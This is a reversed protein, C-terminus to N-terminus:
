GMTKNLLKKLQNLPRTNLVDAKELWGRRAQGIGFRLHEFDGPVHADSNISVLVGEERAMQCYTDVLDLRQPQSNLELYCGRQAAHRVVQALDVDYADREDLLRGTPHALITFYKHDMARRIRSTQKKRPLDFHSHVAGVVLDLESLVVDSLDLSGDELIDVEIGKLVTIGKLESNLEDIQEMQKRLRRADLGKAVTLRKSHDTVAVYQFGMDRAAKVMTKMDARGDTANTHTHLDGKLDDLAILKPLKKKRAAEIEGRDERLEPEIFALGVSKFVEAETTGATRKEGKFIGYENIKLKEQQGLRRVQINHAKSGTFYHLAAGFSQEPVVRLDVQLGSRLLVTARTTGKSVVEDVEDYEVFRDMVPSGKKATVLIDLDGVTEKGRRYSGAVVAQKVGKIEKLYEVLPEAYQAAVSLLFRRETERHAAIVDLIHQETKAGFGSLERLEGKRAAKELQKLTKIKREKYIAKVRKPGLGPIRLLEGLSAPVEKHLDKLAQTTGSELIEEIKEALDKGIGPLKTLDKGQEVMEGLDRGLGRVTRAANRYARVRFPNADQIDLLDAMEDFVAAVDENHVPM